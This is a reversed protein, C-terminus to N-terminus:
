RNKTQKYTFKKRTRFCGVVRTLKQYKSLLRRKEPKFSVTRVGRIEARGDRRDRLGRSVAQWQARCIESWCFQSPNHCRASSYPHHTHRTSSPTQVSSRRHPPHKSRNLKKATLARNKRATTPLPPFTYITGKWVSRKLLALTPKMMVTDAHGSWSTPFNIPRSFSLSTSSTATLTVSRKGDCHWGVSYLPPQGIPARPKQVQSTM